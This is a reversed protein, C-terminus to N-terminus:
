DRWDNVFAITAAHLEDLKSTATIKKTEPDYEIIGHRSLEPVHTQYLSTYVRNRETSSVQSGSEAHAVADVVASFSTTRENHVTEIVHRRRRSALLNLIEDVEHTSIPDPNRRNLLNKIPNM